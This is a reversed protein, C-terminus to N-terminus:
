LRILPGNAFIDKAEEESEQKFAKTIDASSIGAAKLRKLIVELLPARMEQFPIDNDEPMEKALATITKGQEIDKPYSMMSYVLAYLQGISKPWMTRRQEKSAHLLDYLTSMDAVTEFVGMYEAALETGVKGAVMHRLAEKKDEDKHDEPARMISREAKSVHEWSRPNGYLTRGSELADTTECFRHINQKLYSITTPTIIAGPAYDEMWSTLDDTIRLTIFRTRTANDLEFVLTGTDAENGAACVICNNPLPRDNLSRDLFVGFLPKRVRDDASALEDFFLITGAYPQGFFPSKPDMNIEPNGDADLITGDEAPMWEPPFWATTKTEMDQMRTGAADDPNMMNARRDVPKYNLLRALAKVIASKGVGPEGEFYLSLIDDRSGGAEVDNAMALNGEIFIKSYQIARGPAVNITNITM